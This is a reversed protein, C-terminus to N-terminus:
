VARLCLQISPVFVTDRVSEEHLLPSARRTLMGLVGLSAFYWGLLKQQILVDAFGRFLNQSPTKVARSQPCIDM